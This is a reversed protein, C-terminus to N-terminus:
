FYDSFFPENRPIIMELLDVVQPDARLREVKYFYSPRRYNMLLSVLTQISMRAEHCSKKRTINTTGDDLWEVTFVGNNDNLLDDRVIFSLSTANVPPQFPYFKLLNEVDIIRAMYYPSIEETIESDDLLFALPDNTYRWGIVKEVMSQHASIYNWLGRRGDEDLYIMDKIQFIDNAIYYLVYGAPQDNQDYYVAARLDDQDWRWYEQWELSGRILAGHQQEAFKQYVAKIIDGEAHDRRVYGSVDTIRPLKHDPITYKIQDNIIEWGKKRYYPISYPYLYSITQGRAKMELLGQMILSKALGHQAYEPYTGVGTLGGMNYIVGHINVKMPYIAIQSILKDHDFWGLVHAAELIPRKEREIEEENWGIKHLDHNTVQFVYRLLENFAKLDDITLTRMQFGHNKKPSGMDLSKGTM